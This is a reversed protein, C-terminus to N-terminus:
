CTRRRACSSSDRCPSGFYLIMSYGIWPMGKSTLHRAMIVSPESTPVVYDILADGGRCTRSLSPKSDPAWEPQSIWEQVQEKCWANLKTVWEKVNKVRGTQGPIYGLCSESAAEPRRDSSFRGIIGGHVFLTNGAIHALQGLELYKRIVGGSKVSEIFSTCVDDDTVSNVSRNSMIALEERRREFDGDSGM